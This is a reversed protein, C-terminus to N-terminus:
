VEISNGQKEKENLQKNKLIADIGFNLQKNSSKRTGDVEAPRVIGALHPYFGPLTFPYFLDPLLFPSPLM